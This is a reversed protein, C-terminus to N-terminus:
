YFIGFSYYFPKLATVLLPLSTYQLLQRALLQRSSVGALDLSNRKKSKLGGNDGINEGLTNKGSVNVKGLHYDSYQQVM